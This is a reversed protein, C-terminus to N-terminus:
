KSNELFSTPTSGEYKKFTTSFYSVSNFGAMYAIQSIAHTGNKLLKKAYSIRYYMIIESPTKNFLKKTKRYLQSRDVYLLDALQKVKFDPDDYNENIHRFLKKGFDSNTNVPPRINHLERDQKYEEKKGSKQVSTLLSKIQSLVLDNSFPKKIYASGGVAFAEKQTEEDRKGSLFLVPIYPLFTQERVKKIFTIGDMGPMVIDTVILDPPREEIIELASEGDQAITTNYKTSLLSDLLRAIADQDEVILILPKDQQQFDDFTLEGDAKEGNGTESDGTGNTNNKIERNKIIESQNIKEIEEVDKDTLTYGDLPLLVTFVVGNGETQDVAIYGELLNILSKIYTVGVRYRGPTNGNDPKNSGAKDFAKKLDLHTIDTDTDAVKIKLLQDTDTIEFTILGRHTTYTLSISLLNVIIRRVKEADIQVAKKNNKINVDLTIDRQVALSQFKDVIGNIFEQIDTESIHVESHIDSIRASRRLDDTVEVMEAVIEEINQLKIRSEESLRDAEECVQEIYSTILTAPTVLEHSLDTILRSRQNDIHKILDSQESIKENKQELEHTREKVMRSLKHENKRIQAIRRRFLLLVLGLVAFGVGIKFIWTEYYYPNVSLVMSNSGNWKGRGDDAQVEFRYRGAPVQTYTAFNRESSESWTDVFNKLRYRYRNSGPNRYSLAAFSVRFNRKEAPIILTDGIIPVSKQDNLYSIKEIFLPLDKGDSFTIAPDIRIAGEQSPFWIQGTDPHKFGTSQVSGNIEPRNMHDTLNVMRADVNDIEGELFRNLSVLPTKILGKNTGIWLTENGDPIIQHITNTPLGDKRTISEILLSDSQVTVRNLGKNESVVWFRYDDLRNDYSLSDPWINRILGSNLGNEEAFYRSTGKKYHILGDGNTGMWISGDPAEWIYRVEMGRAIGLREFGLTEPESSRYVGNKFGVYIYGGSDQYIAKLNRHTYEEDEGPLAIHGFTNSQKEKVFLGQGLTGALMRGDKLQALSLVFLDQKARAPIKSVSGDGYKWIGNGYTGMWISNARDLILPYINTEPLDRNFGVELFPTETLKFLGADRTGIWINHERDLRAQNIISNTDFIKIGNKFIAKQTIYYINGRDDKLFPKIYVSTGGAVWKLPDNLVLGSTFIGDFTALYLSDNPGYAVGTYYEPTGKEPKYKKVEGGVAIIQDAWTIWTKSNGEAMPIEYYYKNGKTALLTLTGANWMYLKADPQSFYLRGQSDLAVTQVQENALEPLYQKLEDGNYTYLGRDTGLYFRGGADRAYDYIKLNRSASDSNIWKFKGRKYSVLDNQETQFFLTGDSWSKLKIFRNSPLEPVNTTNYVDFSIGNFRVIGNFTTLWVYGKQDIGVYSISNIPLGNQTTYHVEAYRQESSNQTKQALAYDATLASKLGILCLFGSFFIAKQLTTDTL